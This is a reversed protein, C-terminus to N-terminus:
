RSAIAFDGAKERAPYAFLDQRVSERRNDNSALLLLFFVRSRRARALLCIVVILASPPPVAWAHCTGSLAAAHNLDSRAALPSRISQRALISIGIIPGFGFADPITADTSNEDM